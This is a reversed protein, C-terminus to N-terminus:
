KGDLIRVYLKLKENPSSGARYLNDEKEDLKHIEEVIKQSM